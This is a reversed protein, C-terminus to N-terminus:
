MLSDDSLLQGLFPASGQAPHSEAASAPGPWALLGRLPRHFRGESSLSAAFTVQGRQAETEKDAFSHLLGVECFQKLILHSAVYLAGWALSPMCYIINTLM